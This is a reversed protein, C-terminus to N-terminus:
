NGHNKRKYYRTVTRNVDDLFARVRNLLDAIYEDDRQVRVVFLQVDENVRPDYSVFDCWMRNTVALQAQIQPIYKKPAKDEQIYALHTNTNPCKIEILGDDDILGDPSCGFGDLEPHLIFGALEVECDYEFEYAARALPETEVGWVMAESQFMETKMETIRELVIERKLRRYTAKGSYLMSVRSATIKGVRADLWEQSGQQLNM